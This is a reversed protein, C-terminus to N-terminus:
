EGFAATKAIEPMNTRASGLGNLGRQNLANLENFTHRYIRCQAAHVCVRALSSRMRRGLGTDFGGIDDVLAMKTVQKRSTVAAPHCHDRGVRESGLNACHQAQVIFIQLISSHLLRM